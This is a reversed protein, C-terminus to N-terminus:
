TRCSPASAPYAGADQLITLRYAEVTGDRRGASRSASSRPGGTAWASSTRRAPRPGASPGAPTAPSGRCSCIRRAPDGIKPASAAASTPPSSGCRSAADLGYRRRGARRPRRPREANSCFLHLRGDASWAAAAAGPGRAPVAALRQNVLREASSSTAATSSRGRRPRLRVRRRPEHRGRSPALTKGAAAEEPDVVAPARSTTSGCRGRRRRRGARGDREAVVAVPEGVFRVRGTALLPRVMAQDLMPGIPALPALDLDAGTSSPSWAPCRLPRARRRGASRRRPRGDLPRLHRAARGDLLPDDLDASYTGGVTLFRPDEVRVCGTAWSARVDGGAGDRTSSM